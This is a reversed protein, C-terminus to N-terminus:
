FVRSETKVLRAVERLRDKLLPNDAQLFEIVLLQDRHVWGTAIMLLFSFLAPLTGM